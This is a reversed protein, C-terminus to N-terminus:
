SLDEEWRVKVGLEDGKDDLKQKVDGFKEIAGTLDVLMIMVFNGHMVTQTIDLINIGASALETSIGAIIGKRDKGIVTILTSMPDEM